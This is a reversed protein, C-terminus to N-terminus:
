SNFGLSTTIYHNLDVSVSKSTHLIQCEVKVKVNAVSNTLIKRRSQIGRRERVLYLSTSLGCGPSSYFSIGYSNSLKNYVSSM